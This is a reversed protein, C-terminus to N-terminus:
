LYIIILTGLGVATYSIFESWLLRKNGLNFEGLDRWSLTAFIFKILYCGIALAIYNHRVLGIPLITLGILDAIINRTWSNTWFINGQCLKYFIRGLWSGRDTADPIGYGIRFIGIMLLLSVVQWHHVCICATLFLYLPIGIRRYLNSSYDAGGLAGFLGCIIGGCILNLFTLVFLM